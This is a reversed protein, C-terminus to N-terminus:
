SKVYTAKQFTVLVCVQLIDVYPHISRALILPFHM